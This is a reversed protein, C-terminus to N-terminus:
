YYIYNGRIVNNVFNCESIKNGKENYRFSKGQLITDGNRVIYEVKFTEKSDTYYRKLTQTKEDNCWFLFVILGLLIVSFIILTIKYKTKM